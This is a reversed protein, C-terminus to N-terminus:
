LEPNEREDLDPKRYKMLNEQDDEKHDAFFLTVRGQTIAQLHKGAQRGQPSAMAAQTFEISDFYLEHILMYPCNGYLIQEVNSSAERRLGPMSEALRLFEPWGGEFTDQNPPHEILIVLKHM